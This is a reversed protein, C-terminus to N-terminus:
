HIQAFLRRKYHRCGHTEIAGFKVLKTTHFVANRAIKGMMAMQCHHIPALHDGSTCLRYRHREM